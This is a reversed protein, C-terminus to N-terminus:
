KLKSRKGLPLAAAAEAEEQAAAQGCACSLM